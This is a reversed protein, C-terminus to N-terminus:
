EVTVRVEAAVPWHSLDGRYSVRLGYDGAALGDAQLTFGGEADTIVEALPIPAPELFLNQRLIEAEELFVVAVLGARIAREPVATTASLQYDAGPTVEFPASDVFIEEEVTAEMRLMRGPGRDSALAAVRGSGYPGWSALGEAFSPNNVRNVGDGDEIFSVDYLRLDADAPTAGEANVRLAILASNATEPITGSVSLAQAAGSLPVLELSLLGGAVPEGSLKALGGDLELSGPESAGPTTIELATRDGFYRNVLGTFTFPEDEPLVHKPYDLWSQFIVHDPTGGWIEEYRAMNEAASQLWTEDSEYKPHANYIIGIPVGRAAGVEEVELAVQPWDARDWPIDLHLFAFPEGAAAEYADLWIAMDDATIEPESWLPEISGVVVGPHIRRLREVFDATETAVQKVPRQCSGPSDLKHAFAYPEEVAAIALTGGLDKIRQAMELDYTGEFSESHQCESPDPVELPEMELGLALGRSHLAELMDLVQGDTMYHRLYWSHIKFIDVHSAAQSWPANPEFLDYYDVSGDPLPLDKGPPQAPVPAFWVLPRKTLDLAIPTAAETPAPQTTPASSPEMPEPPSVACSALTIFMGAAFLAPLARRASVPLPSDTPPTQGHPKHPPTRKM